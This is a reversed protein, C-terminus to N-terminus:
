SSSVSSQHEWTQEYPPRASHLHSLVHHILDPQLSSQWDHSLLLDSCTRSIWIHVEFYHSSHWYQGFEAFVMESSRFLVHMMRQRSCCGWLRLLQRGDGILWLVIRHRFCLCILHHSWRLWSCRHCTLVWYGFASETLSHTWTTRWRHSRHFTSDCAALLQQFQSQALAAVPAAEDAGKLCRHMVRHEFVIRVLKWLSFHWYRVCSASSTGLCGLFLEWFAQVVCWADSVGNWLDGHSIVRLAIWSRLAELSSGKWCWLSYWVHPRVIM